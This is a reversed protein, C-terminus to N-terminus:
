NQLSRTFTFPSFIQMDQLPFKSALIRNFTILNESWTLYPARGGRCNRLSHKKPRWKCYYSIADDWSAFKRTAYPMDVFECCVDIVMNRIKVMTVDVNTGLGLYNILRFPSNSAIEGSEEVYGCTIMGTWSRIISLFVTSVSEIVQNIKIPPPDGKVFEQPKQHFFGLDILPAFIQEIVLHLKAKERLEATDM